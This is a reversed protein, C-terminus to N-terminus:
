VGTTTIYHTNTESDVYIDREIRKVQTLPIIKIVILKKM